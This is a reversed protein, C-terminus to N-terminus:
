AGEPFPIIDFHNEPALSRNREQRWRMEKAWCSRCLFVGAGGPLPLRISPVDLRNCPGDCTDSRNGDDIQLAPM